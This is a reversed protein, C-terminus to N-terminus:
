AVVESFGNEKKVVRIFSDFRDKDENHSIVFIQDFVKTLRKIMVSVKDRSDDDLMGFVEDLFITRFPMGFMEILIETLALRISFVFLTKEGGSLDDFTKQGSNNTAVFDLKDDSLDFVIKHEANVEAQIENAKSEWVPFIKKSMLWSPVGTKHFANELRDYHKLQKGIKSFEKKNDSLKKKKDLFANLIVNADVINNLIEDHLDEIESVRSEKEEKGSILKKFDSYDTKLLKDLNDQYSKLLKMDKYEKVLDDHSDLQESVSEIDKDCAQKKTDVTLKKKELNSKKTELKKIEKTTEALKVEQEKWGDRKCTPCVTGNEELEEKNKKAIKLVPVIGAIDVDIQKEEKEIGELVDEFDALKEEHKDYDFSNIKKELSTPKYKKLKEEVEEVTGYNAIEAKVKSVDKCWKNYEKEDPIKDIEKELKEREVTLKKNREKYDSIEKKIIKESRDKIWAELDVQEREISQQKVRLENSQKKTEKLYKEYMFNKFIDTVTKLRQAPQSRMLVDSSGQQFFYTNVFTDFDCKM